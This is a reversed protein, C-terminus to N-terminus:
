NLKPRDFQSIKQAAFKMEAALLDIIENTEETSIVGKSTAQISGLVFAVGLSLTSILDMMQAPTAGNECLDTIANKVHEKPSLPENDM